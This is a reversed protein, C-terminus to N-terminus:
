EEDRWVYMVAVLEGDEAGEGDKIDISLGAFEYERNNFRLYYKGNGKFAAAMAELETFPMNGRAIVSRKPPYGAPRHDDCVIIYDM